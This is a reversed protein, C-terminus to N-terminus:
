PEVCARVAEPEKTAGAVPQVREGLVHERGRAIADVSVDPERRGRRIPVGTNPSPSRTRDVPDLEHV